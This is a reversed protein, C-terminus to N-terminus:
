LIVKVIEEEFIIITDGEEIITKGDTLMGFESEKEVTDASIKNRQLESVVGKGVVAKNRMIEFSAGKKIIGSEVRGGVIQRSGEKKFVKLIRTRGLDTRKTEPPIIKAMRKKVEDMLEYIIDGTTININGQEALEKASSDIKVKFGVITVLKTAQAMKVDSENISGIESRIIRIRVADTQLKLISEALAEQSGSVDAKLIINFIPRGEDKDISVAPSSETEPPLSKIYDEAEQTSSFVRFTDGVVPTLAFGVVVVPSSPGAERIPKGLFDEFIKITEISKGLVFVDGTKLTGDRVLLTATTGRQPNMHSEVVVGEAPKNPESVLGELEAVLLLTELLEDMKDGTKASIEVSPIKGGYSEVLVNEKALEQKIREVNAGNKDIKNIAVVFPISNELITNLSEKTQPKVGDDAAVVLIAIDAVKAGRSRMKSFAEHGPTDIFTIKKDKYDFEYAGIHQTIGGSEGAAVKTKRYWDLITTKGHDVHGMVVVIPPRGMNQMDKKNNKEKKM